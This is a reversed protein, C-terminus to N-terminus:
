LKAAAVMKAFVGDGEALRRPDGSEVLQGGSLVLLHDTDLITDVRHAIVLLVRGHSCSRVQILQDTARDVNATAEDLALVKADQLLARALCFLQRQGVSLNGGCEAMAADLGGPMAAVSEALQVAGLVEWLAKDDYARWPDLNRRLTGSFLVPDQPIIALQRRLADLGLTATDCGDLLIRGGVVDILRFLTLMLSSKGSGTRGVVGCSTGPPLSFSLDRLVPPLCGSIRMYPRYAQACGGCMTDYSHRVTYVGARRVQRVVWQMLGTLQLVHTLALAMVGTNIRDRMAVALLAAALLATGAVADLRVGIWRSTSIFAFYWNSNHAMLKLFEDHFRDAAGYARITPLGKLTASFSAFIPSRSVAEWRKIDRSATVYRHRVWYFALALPLFVPLIVPVAVAVLVFAGAVQFASQLADFTCSPLLDDVHGQDKSFRNVIRGSPNTHFFSLPAFLVRRAMSNHISTAASLTAEFFTASRVFAVVIVIGTLMGYVWLWKVHGQDEGDARSWLALWWESALFVAQGAFMAACIFGTAMLGLHRCYSGYVRWSVTGTVRDESQVLDESGSSAVALSAAAAAAADGATTVKEEEGETGAPARDGDVDDDLVVEDVTPGDESAAAAVGEVDAAAAPPGMLGGHGATLETLKLAALQRWSGEAVLRGGRLVLVRDCKPLCQRQHTVLLRTAGCEDLLGGPGIARSFLDRGVRPDVASLPDDLLAVAPRSYCARALAVRAKQGGSLNIGREGLETADGAPFGTLDDALCCAHVVRGYWQEDWASGFLINERVTGAVIWPVQ